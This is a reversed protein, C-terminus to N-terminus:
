TRGTVYKERISWSDHHTGRQPRRSVKTQWGRQVLTEHTLRGARRRLAMGLVAHYTEESEAKAAKLVIGLKKANVKIDLSWACDVLMDWAIREMDDM